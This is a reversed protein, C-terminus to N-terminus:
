LVLDPGEEGHQLLELAKLFRNSGSAGISDLMSAMRTPLIPELSSCASAFEDVALRINQDDTRAGKKPTNAL